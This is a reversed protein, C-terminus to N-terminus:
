RMGMKRTQKSWAVKQQGKEEEEEEEEEKSNGRLIGLYM